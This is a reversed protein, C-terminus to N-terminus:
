PERCFHAFETSIGDHSLSSDTMEHFLEAADNVSARGSNDECYSTAAENYSIDSLKRAAEKKHWAFIINERLSENM